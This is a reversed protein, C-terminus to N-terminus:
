STANWCKTKEKKLKPNWGHTHTHLWCSTRRFLSIFVRQGWRSCGNCDINNIRRHIFIDNSTRYHTYNKRLTASDQSFTECWNCLVLFLAFVSLIFSLLLPTSFFLFITLRRLFQLFCFAYFFVFCFFFSLSVLRFRFTRIFCFLTNYFSFLSAWLRFSNCNMTGVCLFSWKTSCSVCYVSYFLLSSTPVFVDYFLISTFFFKGNSALCWWRLLSKTNNLETERKSQTISINNVHPADMLYMGSCM